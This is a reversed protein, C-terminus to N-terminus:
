QEQEVRYRITAQLIDINIDKLTEFKICYGSVIAKSPEKGYTKALYTKGKIGLVYVSIGTANASM